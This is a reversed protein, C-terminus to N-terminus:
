WNLQYIKKYLFCLVEVMVIKNWFIEIKILHQIRGVDHCCLLSAWAEMNRKSKKGDKSLLSKFIASTLGFFTCHSLLLWSFSSPKWPEVVTCLTIWRSELGFLPLDRLFHFVRFRCRVDEEEWDQERGLRLFFFSSFYSVFYFLFSPSSRRTRKQRWRRSMSSSKSHLLLGLFWSTGYQISAFVM